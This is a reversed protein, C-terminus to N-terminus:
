ADYLPSQETWTELAKELYGSAVLMQALHHQLIQRYRSIFAVQRYLRAGTEGDSEDRIMQTCTQWALSSLTLQCQKIGRELVMIAKRIGGQHKYIMALFLYGRLWLTHEQIATRLLAGAESLDNRSVYELALTSASHLPALRTDTEPVTEDLIESIRRLQASLDLYTLNQKM